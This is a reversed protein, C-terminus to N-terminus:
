RGLEVVVHYRRRAAVGRRCDVPPLRRAVRGVHGNLATSCRRASRVGCMRSAVCRVPESSGRPPWM